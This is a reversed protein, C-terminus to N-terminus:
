SFDEYIISYMKSHLNNINHNKIMSKIMKSDDNLNHNQEM